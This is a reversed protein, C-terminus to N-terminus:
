KDPATKHLDFITQLCTNMYDSQPQKVHMFRIKYTRGELYLVNCYNFYKSFHDVDMTASMIIIKLPPLNSYSQRRARQAEKVIGFLIDTNITREHAEDLIIVRYQKLLKDTLAERLLTGDTMFKIKTLNSTTDEFRVKYGVKEGLKCNMETAVRRSVSIAAVRRPQTIGIMGDDAMESEYLFQPIQTTKGSGTEGLIILTHRGEIEKM